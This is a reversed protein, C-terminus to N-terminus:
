SRPKKRLPPGRPPPAPSFRHREDPGEDDEIPGRGTEDVLEVHEVEFWQKFVKMSRDRPGVDEDTFWGDFNRCVIEGCAKELVKEADAPDEYYPTLISRRGQLGGSGRGTETGTSM